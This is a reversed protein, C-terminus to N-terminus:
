PSLQKWLSYLSNSHIPFVLIGTKMDVWKFSEKRGVPQEMASM